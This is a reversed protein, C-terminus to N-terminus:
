GACHPLLYFRSARQLFLSSIARICTHAHTPTHTHTHLSRTHTERQTLQLANTQACFDILRDPFKKKGRAFFDARQLILARELDGRAILNQVAVMNNLTM